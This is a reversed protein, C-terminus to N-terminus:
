GVHAAGMGRAGQGQRGAAVEHCQRRLEGPGVRAGREQEPTRYPPNRVTGASAPLGSRSQRAVAAAPPRQRPRHTPCWHELRADTSTGAGRVATGRGESQQGHRPEPGVCARHGAPGRGVRARQQRRGPCPQQRRGHGVAGGGEPETRARTRRHCGRGQRAAAGEQGGHVGCLRDASRDRLMLSLPDMM